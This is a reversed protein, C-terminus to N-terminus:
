PVTVTIGVAVEAAAVTDVGAATGDLVLGALEPAGWTAGEEVVLAAAVGEVVLLEVTSSSLAGGVEVLLADVVL